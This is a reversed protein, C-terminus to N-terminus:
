IEKLENKTRSLMNGLVIGCVEFLNWVSMYDKKWDYHCITYNYEALLRINERSIM